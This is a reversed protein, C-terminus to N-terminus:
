SARNSVVYEDERRSGNLKAKFALPQDTESLQGDRIFVLRDAYNNVMPDHTVVLFTVGHNQNLRQIMGMVRESTKTDLNGTPEDALVLKPDNVLTRALAVRQKQGGSLQDPRRNAEKLLGVEELLSLVKERRVAKPVGKLLLPYEINEFATLVPILNFSQFMLGIKDRRLNALESQTLGSIPQGDILVEGASPQDICAVLNLFTTKGSGSPGNIVIFDGAEAQFDVGRLAHVQEQGVTYTKTLQQTKLVM